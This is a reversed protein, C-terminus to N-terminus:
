LSLPSSNTRVGTTQGCLNRRKSKPTATPTSSSVPASAVTPEPAEAAGEACGVLALTPLMLLAILAIRDTRTKLM